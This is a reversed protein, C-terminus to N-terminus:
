IRGASIVFRIDVRNDVGQSKLQSLPGVKFRARKITTSGTIKASTKSYENIVFDLTTQVKVGKITLYGDAKYQKPGSGRYIRTSEFIAKKFLETSLWDKNKITELAESFSMSISSTYINIKVNSEDLNDKDFNIDGDFDKFSGEINSNNQYAVFELSSHEPNIEWSAITKQTHRNMFKGEDENTKELFIAEVDISIEVEDSIGPLGFNINFDSRKIKATASFGITQKKNLPNVGEKNLKAQLTVIRTVGLITLNGRIRAKTKTYPSISFSKFTATPYNKTDFFDPSKLHDDFKVLGTSISNTKIEVEVSSNQLNNKDIEIIGSIDSFKGTPKSFGFHSARWSVHAHNPDIQYIEKSFSSTAFFLFIFFLTIRM